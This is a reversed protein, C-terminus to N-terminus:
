LTDRRNGNSAITCLGENAGDNIHATLEDSIKTIRGADTIMFVNDVGYLKGCITRVAGISDIKVYRSNAADKIQKSTANKDGMYYIFSAKVEDPTKRELQYINQNAM